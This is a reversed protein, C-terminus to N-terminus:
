VGNTYCLKFKIWYVHCFKSNFWFYVKIYNLSFFIISYKFVYLVRFYIIFFCNLLFEIFFGFGISWKLILLFVRWGSKANKEKKFRCYPRLGLADRKYITAELNEIPSGKRKAPTLCTSKSSHANMGLIMTTDQFM